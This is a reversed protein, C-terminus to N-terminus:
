DAFAAGLVHFCIDEAIQNIWKNQISTRAWVVAAPGTALLEGGSLRQTLVGAQVVLFFKNTVHTFLFKTTFVIQFFM